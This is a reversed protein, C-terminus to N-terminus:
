TPRNPSEAPSLTQYVTNDRIRGGCRDVTFHTLGAYRHAHELLLPMIHAAIHRHAQGRRAPLVIHGATM